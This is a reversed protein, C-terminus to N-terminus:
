IIYLILIYHFGNGPFGRLKDEKQKQKAHAVGLRLM